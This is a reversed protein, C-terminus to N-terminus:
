NEEYPVLEGSYFGKQFKSQTIVYVSMMFPLFSPIFDNRADHVEMLVFIDNSNYCRYWNKLGKESLRLLQGITFRTTEM